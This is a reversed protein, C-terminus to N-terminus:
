HTIELTYSAPERQFSVKKYESWATHLGLVKLKM